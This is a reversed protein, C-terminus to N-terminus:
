EQKSQVRSIVESTPKWLSWLIKARPLYSPHQSFPFLLEHHNLTVNIRRSSETLWTFPCFVVLLSAKFYVSVFTSIFSPCSIFFLKKTWRNRNQSKQGIKLIDRKSLKIFTRELKVYYVFPLAFLNVKKHQTM